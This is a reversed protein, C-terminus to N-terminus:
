HANGGRAALVHKGEALGAHELPLRVATSAQQTWLALALYMVQASHQQGAWGVEAMLSLEPENQVWQRCLRYLSPPEPALAPPLQVRRDSITAVSPATAAPTLTAWTLGRAEQPPGNWAVAQGAHRPLGAPPTAATAAAPAPAPAAAAPALQQVFLPQSPVAAPQEQEQQM